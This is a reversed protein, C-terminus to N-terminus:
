INGVDDSILIRCDKERVDPRLDVLTVGTSYDIGNKVGGILDGPAVVFTEKKVEGKEKRFVAVTVSTVTKTSMQQRVATFYYDTIRPATVEKWGTWESELAFQSADAPNKALNVTNNLPNKHKALQRHRYTKRPQNTTTTTR